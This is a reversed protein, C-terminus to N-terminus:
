KFTVELTIHTGDLGTRWAKQLAEACVEGLADAPIDTSCELETLLPLGARDLIPTRLKGPVHSFAQVKITAMM